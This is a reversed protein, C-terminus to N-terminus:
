RWMDNLRKLAENSVPLLHIFLWIASALIALFAIWALSALDYRRIENV